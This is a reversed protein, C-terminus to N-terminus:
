LWTEDDLLYCSTFRNGRIGTSHSQGTNGSSPWWTGTNKEHYVYTKDGRVEVFLKFDPNSLDVKSETIGHVVSGAYAAMEQSTFDHNGVRRCRVAFSDKSSFSGDTVLETIYAEILEKISDHDTHTVVAPSYSVIGM